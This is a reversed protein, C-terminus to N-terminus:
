RGLPHQSKRRGTSQLILTVLFIFTVLFYSYNVALAFLAIKFNNRTRQNLISMM